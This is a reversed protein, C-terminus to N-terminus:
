RFLLENSAIVAFSFAISCVFLISIIMFDLKLTRSGRWALLFLISCIIIGVANMGLGIMASIKAEDEASYAGLMLPFVRVIAPFFLFPFVLLKKTKEVIVLAIVAQLITFAPGGMCFLLANSENIFHGNKVWTGNLDMAMEYGLLTGALWHGCEHFVFSVYAALLLM